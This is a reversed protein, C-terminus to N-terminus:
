FADVDNPTPQLVDVKSSSFLRAAKFASVVSSHHRTFKEEFYNYALQICQKAYAMLQQFVLHNGSTIKQAVATTNPYHAPRISLMVTNLVEYCDLALPADGELNYTATVLSRGADVVISMEIELLTKKATDCLIILLKKCTSPDLDTNVTLFPQIDGFIKM